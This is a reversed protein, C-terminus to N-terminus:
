NLLKSRNEHKEKLKRKLYKKRNVSLDEKLAATGFLDKGLQFPTFQSERRSLYEVISEKIVESRSKGEIRAVSDLQKEMDNPIRFSVMICQLVKIYYMCAFFLM